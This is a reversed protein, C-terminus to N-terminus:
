IKLFLSSLIGCVGNRGAFGPACELGVDSQACRRDCAREHGGHFTTNPNQAFTPIASVTATSFVLALFLLPTM